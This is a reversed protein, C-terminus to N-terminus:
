SVKMQLRHLASVALTAVAIMLLAYPAAEVPRDDGAFEYVVLALTNIDFPRLILTAPLEKFVDIAVILAGIFLPLRLMPIHVTRLLSLQSKGLSVAARDMESPIRLYGSHLASYAPSLFRILYALLLGVISGTLILSSGTRDKILGQLMLLGVAIVVGPMAYGLSAAINTIRPWRRLQREAFAMILAAFLVVLAASAALLVSDLLADIMPMLPWIDLYRTMQMLWVCPAAFAALVPLACWLSVGYGKLPKLVRRARAPRGRLNHYAAGKRSLQECWLILAAVVLLGSALRAALMPENMFFWTRYIGTALTPVGLMHVTGLDAITEMVVLALAIVIFPRAAPLAVQWFCQRRTKGLSQAVDAWEGPQSSFAMRSLMYVYPTTSLGLLIIAGGLSRVEPFWYDGRQWGMLDRLATQVPGAFEFLSGYSLALIYAPIAFPMILLWSLHRRGPFECRTVFWATSIGFIAAVLAVGAALLFTNIVYDPLVTQIIHQWNGQSVEPMPVIWASLVLLLPLVCLSAIAFALGREM